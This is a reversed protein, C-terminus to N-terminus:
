WDRWQDIQNAAQPFRAACVIQEYADCLDEREITSIFRREADLRNFDKVSQKLHKKVVGLTLKPAERLENVLKRILSRCQHLPLKSDSDEWSAFWTRDVLSDLTLTRMLEAQAVARQRQVEALEAAQRAEEQLLAARDHDWRWQMLAQIPVSQWGTFSSSSAVLDDPSLDIRGVVVFEPPMLDHVWIIERKRKWSHHNLILTERLAPVDLTPLDNGLWPTAAILVAQAGGHIQRRLV